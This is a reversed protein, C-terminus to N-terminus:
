RAERRARLTHTIGRQWGDTPLTEVDVFGARCLRDEIARVGDFEVVSRRLYRFIDTSGTLALALPVVLLSMVCNWTVRARLSDAVSYEHVCLTGGPALLEHLGRLCGDPDPVNRLGYAMLIADFPGRIGAEPVDMADGIRFEVARLHPKTRAHSLMGPSNDVGTITAQPYVDILAATSLGTGCALDLIRGDTPARLREASMRLHREYGPNLACMRDYNAAVADFAERIHPKRAATPTATKATAPTNVTM